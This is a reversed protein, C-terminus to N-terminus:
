AYFKNTINRSNRLKAARLENSKNLCDKKIFLDTKNFRHKEQGPLEASYLLQRRLLLDCTQIRDPDSLTEQLLPRKQKYAKDM